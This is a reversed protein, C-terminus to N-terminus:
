QLLKSYRCGFITAQWLKLICSIYKQDNLTNKFYPVRRSHIHNWFTLLFNEASNWNFTKCLSLCLFGQQQFTSFLEGPPPSPIDSRSHILMFLFTVSLLLVYILVLCFWKGIRVHKNASNIEPGPLSMLGEGVSKWGTLWAGRPSGSGGPAGDREAPSLVLQFWFGFGQVAACNLSKTQKDQFPALSSDLQQRGGPVLWPRSM